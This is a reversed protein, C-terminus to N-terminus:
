SIKAESKIFDRLDTDWIFTRSGRKFTKLRGDKIALYLFSRSHDTANCAGKISHCIKNQM